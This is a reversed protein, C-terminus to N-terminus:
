SEKELMKSSILSGTGVKSSVKVPVLCVGVLCFMPDDFHISHGDELSKRLAPHQFHELTPPSSFGSLMTGLANPVWFM